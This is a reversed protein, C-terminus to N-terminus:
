SLIRQICLLPVSTWEENGYSGRSSETGHGVLVTGLCRVPPIDTGGLYEVASDDQKLNADLHFPGLPWTTSQEHGSYRRGRKIGLDLHQYRETAPGCSVNRSNFFIAKSSTKDRSKGKCKITGFGKDWTISPKSFVNDGGVKANNFLILSVM